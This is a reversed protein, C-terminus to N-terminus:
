YKPSCSIDIVASPFITSLNSTTAFHTSVMGVSPVSTFAGLCRVYETEYRPFLVGVAPRIRETLLSKVLKLASGAVNQAANLGTKELRKM